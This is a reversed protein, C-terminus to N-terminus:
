DEMISFMKRYTKAIEFSLRILEFESTGRPTEYEEESAFWKEWEDWTKKKCSIELTEESVVFIWRCFFHQVIIKFRQRGRVRYRGKIHLYGTVDLDREVKLDKKVYLSGKVLLDGNISLYGKAELPGKVNLSGEVYLTGEVDLHGEVNLDEEVFILGELDITLKGDWNNRKLLWYHTKNEIWESDKNIIYEKM